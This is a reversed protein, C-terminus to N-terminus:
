LGRWPLFAAVTTHEGSGYNESPAELYNVPQGNGTPLQGNFPTVQGSTVTERYEKTKSRHANANLQPEEKYEHGNATPKKTKAYM